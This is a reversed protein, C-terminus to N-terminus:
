SPQLIIFTDVGSSKRHGWFQFQCKFHDPTRLTKLTVVQRPIPPAAYYIERGFWGPLIFSLAMVGILSLWLKRDSRPAENGIPKTTNM